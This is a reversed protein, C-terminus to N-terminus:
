VGRAESWIVPCKMQRQMQFCLLSVYSEAMAFYLDNEDTAEYIQFPCGYWSADMEVRGAKLFLNLCWRKELVKATLEEGDVSIM